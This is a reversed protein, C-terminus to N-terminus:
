RLSFTGLSRALDLFANDFEKWQNGDSPHRLKGDDKTRDASAHWSMLKADEPNGFLACLRDIVPLYWVFLAPSKRHTYGEEEDDQQASIQKMANSLKKAGKKRKPGVLLAEDDDADVRCGANRKYRSFSYRPYSTLNEYEKGRYLICHNPCADFKRLKMAVPWILKKARYTNAPVNNPTPYTTALLSLLENFNTDSWGHHAKLMLMQLNFCLTTCEKPCSGGDQYLPDCSAKKMERFNELWKPCGFVVDDEDIHNVLDEFLRVDEAEQVTAEEVNVSDDRDDGMDQIIDEV